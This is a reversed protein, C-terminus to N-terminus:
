AVGPNKGLTPMSATTNFDFPIKLTFTGTPTPSVLKNASAIVEWLTPDGYYLTALAYLNPNKVTTEPVQEPTILQAMSKLLRGLSGSAKFGYRAVAATLMPDYGSLKAYVNIFFVNVSDLTTKINATQPILIKRVAEPALTNYPKANEMNVMFDTHLLKYTDIGTVVSTAAAALDITVQAGPIMKVGAYLVQEPHKNLQDALNKGAAQFVLLMRTYYNAAKVYDIYQSWMSAPASVNLYENRLKSPLLDATNDRIVKFKLTYSVKNQHHVTPLFEAVVGTFRFQDFYFEVETGDRRFTDLAQMRQLATVIEAGTGQLMEANLLMTDHQRLDDIQTGSLTFLVGSFELMRPQAGFTDITRGGGIFQHEANMQTGGMPLNEPVETEYFYFHEAHDKGLTVISGVIRAAPAKILGGQNQLAGIPTQGLASLDYQAGPINM